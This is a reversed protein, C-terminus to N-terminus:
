LENLIAINNIAKIDTETPKSQYQTNDLLLKHTIINTPVSNNTM